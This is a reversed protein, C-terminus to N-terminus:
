SLSGDLLHRDRADREERGCSRRGDGRHRTMNRIGQDACQYKASMPHCSDRLGIRRDKAVRLSRLVGTFRFAV